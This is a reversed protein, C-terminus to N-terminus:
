TTYCSCSLYLRYATAMFICLDEKSLNHVPSCCFDAKVPCCRDGAACLGGSSVFDLFHTLYIDLIYINLLMTFNDKQNISYISNTDPYVCVAIHM